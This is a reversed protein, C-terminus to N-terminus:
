RLGGLSASANTLGWKQLKSTHRLQVPPTSTEMEAVAKSQRVLCDRSRARVGHGHSARSRPGEDDRHYQKITQTRPQMQGGGRPSNQKATTPSARALLARARASGPSWKVRPEGERLLCGWEQPKRLFLSLKTYRPASGQVLPNCQTSHSSGM